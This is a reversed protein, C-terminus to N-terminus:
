FFLIQLLCYPSNRQLCSISLLGKIPALLDQQLGIRSVLWVWFMRKPFSLVAVVTECSERRYSLYRWCDLFQCQCVELARRVRSVESFGAAIQGSCSGERRIKNVGSLPTSVSWTWTAHGGAAGVARATAVISSAVTADSAALPAACLCVVVVSRPVWKSSRMWVMRSRSLPWSDRVVSPISARKM